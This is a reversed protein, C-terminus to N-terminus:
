EKWAFIVHNRIEMLKSKVIIREVCVFSDSLVVIHSIVTKLVAYIPIKLV